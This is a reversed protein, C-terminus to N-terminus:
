NRGRGGRDERDMENWWRRSGTRYNEPYGRERYRYGYGCHRRGHSWWCHRAVHEIPLAERASPANILPVAQAASALAASAILSSVAALTWLRLEM